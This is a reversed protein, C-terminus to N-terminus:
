FYKRVKIKSKSLWLFTDNVIDFMNKKPKWNYTKSVIKNDTVFYPIDYISTKSIKKFKIKNKTLKECIKTLNRLSTNSKKSGGVTFLQNHIKNIKKIQLYILESLDDIHLVDRVQNGHGGFGIYNLNKKNIHKWIWLSVFGQDQKGFQLPGSLVGCRNIIYKLGFAYSFEEIFMESALKSLGYITKPGTIKDKENFLKKIPIKKTLNKKSIIKNIENVPYVRSSSLFIIKSNDKKLKRLINITGILNTKIVRDIEKKSVEVAAEACCDIILDYKPLKLIKKVNLIDINFNKINNTKLLDLNYKSGKRSLNDLSNINFGKKKLFLAINTGVFGCGGTILIKM